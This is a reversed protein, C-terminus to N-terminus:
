KLHLNLQEINRKLIERAEYLYWKSTGASINLMEGIQKHTLGEIAFMNFVVRYQQPLEQVLKMLDNYLLNETQNSNIATEKEVFVMKERYKVTSKAYNSVAHFVIKRLWGEFSGKYKYSKINQFARLFGDQMIEEAIMEDSFYRKVMNILRPYFLRYVKEQADRRNQTCGEILEQLEDTAAIRQNYALIISM